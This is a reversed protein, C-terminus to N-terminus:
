GPDPGKPTSACIDQNPCGACADAKGAEEDEPGQRLLQLYILWGVM